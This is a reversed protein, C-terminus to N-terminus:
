LWDGFGDLLQATLFVTAGLRNEIYIKGTTADVSVTAKADTGDTGTLVISVASINIGTSGSSMLATKGGSVSFLIIASNSIAGNFSVLIAGTDSLPKFNIATDDAMSLRSIPMAGDYQVAYAARTQDGNQAIFKTRYKAVSASGAKADEKIFFFETGPTPGGVISYGNIDMYGGRSWAKTYVFTHTLGTAVLSNPLQFNNNILWFDDCYTAASDRGFVFSYKNLYGATIRSIANCNRIVPSKANYMWVQQPHNDDLELGDLVVGKAVYNDASGILIGGYLASPTGDGSYATGNYACAGQIWQFHTSNCEVGIDTCSIIYVNTLRAIPWGNGHPAYIGKKCGVIRVNNLQMNASATYDPNIGTDNDIHLGYRTCSDILLNELRFKWCSRIKIADSNAFLANGIISVGSIYGGYSFFYNLATAGIGTNIDFLQGNAVENKFITNGEGDGLIKLGRAQAIGDTNFYDLKTGIKYGGAPCLIEKGAAAVIAKQFAASVDLTYTYAKVDAIEEPTMYGFVCIRDRLADQITRLTAGVGAQTYGLQSAGSATGLSVLFAGVTGTLYTAEVNFEVRGAGVIGQIVNDVPWNLQPVDDSDLLDIKYVLDLGLRFETSGNADLILESGIPTIGDSAYVTQPTTTGAEYFKVKGGPLPLGNVIPQFKISPPLSATM